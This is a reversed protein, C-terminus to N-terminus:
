HAVIVQTKIVNGGCSIHVFYHDPILGSTDFQVTSGDASNGQILVQGLKNYLKYSFPTAMKAQSQSPQVAATSVNSTLAISMTTSAPNPYIVFQASGKTCTSATFNGFTKVVGCPTTIDCEIGYTTATNFGITALNEGPQIFSSTPNTSWNWASAGTLVPAQFTYDDADNTCGSAPGTIPNATPAVGCSVTLPNVYYPVCDSVVTASLVVNGTTNTSLPTLTAQQGSVTLTASSAPSASWTVAAGAPLGNISYTGSSCIVNSGNINYSTTSSYAVSPPQPNGNFEQVLWNMADPWLTIHTQNTSFSGFYSNFPTEGTCVLNRSSINESLNQNSGTFALASKTSVFSHNNQVNWFYNKLTGGLKVAVSDKNNAAIQQQTNFMGGPAADYSSTYSPTSFNNIRIQSPDVLFGSFVTATSGASPTFYVTAKAATFQSKRVKFLLFNITVENAIKYSFALSGDAFLENGGLSGDTVAIKRFPQGADGTPFGINNMVSVFRDRFGPAGGPNSSNTLYHNVLMEKAAPCNAQQDLAKKALDSVVSFFNLFKQDGIPVNAGLHPADFSVWLGVNHKHQHQEMYALAYRSVLGGMSPGVLINKATGQKMSNITDLLTILVQANREIYDTGGDIGGIPVNDPYVLTVIDFGQTRLYDLFHTSNYSANFASYLSDNTMGGSFFQETIIIPKRLVGDGCGGTTAYYIEYRGKGFSQTNEDYGQFPVASIVDYPGRTVWCTQPIVHGIGYVKIKGYTTYVVANSMTAVFKLKRYGNTGTFTVNYSGGPSVSVLGNGDGFDVQLSTLSLSSQNIFLNAQFVFQVANQANVSDILPSAVFTNKLDYPSATRNPTDYYLSDSHMQILNNALANTDIMNYTYFAIGVPVNNKNIQQRIATARNKITDVSAWGAQNYASSFMELYAQFFYGGYTTDPQNQNLLHLCTVPFARDYLVGTTIATKNLNQLLSDVTTTFQNNPVPNVFVTAINSTVSVGNSTITLQYCTTATLAMPSYTPGTAGSINSWTLNGPSSQWQYAYAGNGGTASGTLAVPATNYNVTQGAPSINGAVLPPDTVTVALLAPVSTGSSNSATVLVTATGSFSANWKVTAQNISASITGATGPSLSWHLTIGPVIPPVSYQSSTTPMLVSTPGSVPGPSPPAGSSVAPRVQANIKFCFLLSILMCCLSPM